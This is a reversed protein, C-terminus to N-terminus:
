AKTAEQMIDVMRKSFGIADEPSLHGDVFLASTYLQEVCPAIMPHNADAIYLKSLNQLLPHELNVEMTRKSRKFEKNMMQMMREMQPDMADKGKVLTVPSDVLRKSEVVDEVKDKLLEKFTKLLGESLGSEKSEGKDDGDSKLDIDSKDISILSKGDYEMLSPLIFGDVPDTMLVVEIDHKKFYELNPNREVVERHDGTLYYIDKQDAKMRTVYDRLTTFEGKDKHTSEFCLLEVIRDKNEFDSNVGTKFLPGFNKYFELYKSEDGKSWDELLSLIKKTIIGKMKSMLPSSQTVERSVNLPLDITDVVGRAFRLYEPLLEKCDREILIKNCYLHLGKDEQMRFLDHPANKPIFILSKFNVVTGEINLHLHGLPDEFDNSVFKYFENREEDKVEGESKLWVANVKNIQETGLFIPFDAFNSYKEVVQKVGHEESFQKFGEKLKFSIKTGRTERNIEEVSFSEQGNSVWKYGKSEKNAHRTEVTVEDTVMFVSYFGVGFQGILSEASNADKEKAQKIFEMTGSKAITGLNNLLEDETMGIGNDEISFSNTKSDIEIEINLEANDDILEQNTLKAVRAKNLADSANSILERLFVEPHSYLSHIILHLLEKMEAKFEHKKQSM